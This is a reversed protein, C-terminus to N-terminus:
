KSSVRPRLPMSDTKLSRRGFIWRGIRKWTVANRRKRSIYDDYYKDIKEVSQVSPYVTDIWSNDEIVHIAPLRIINERDIKYKYSNFYRSDYEIGRHECFDRLFAYDVEDKYVFCVTFTM